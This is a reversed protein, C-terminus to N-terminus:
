CQIVIDRSFLYIIKDKVSKKTIKELARAYLALQIDYKQHIEDIGDVNDTKYDVLVIGDEEEFWCDIVGQLLVQEGCLEEEGYLEGADASIEFESERHM